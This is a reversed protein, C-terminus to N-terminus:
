VLFVYIKAPPQLCPALFMKKQEQKKIMLYSAAGLSSFFLFLKLLNQPKIASLYRINGRLHNLKCRKFKLCKDGKTQGMAMVPSLFVVQLFLPRKGM